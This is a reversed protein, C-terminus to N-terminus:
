RQVRAVPGHEEVLLEPDTTTPTLEAGRQRLGTCTALLQERVALARDRAVPVRIGASTEEYGAGVVLVTEGPDRDLARVHTTNVLWNRHVRLFRKGFSLEIAALSLDIDFVRRSRM